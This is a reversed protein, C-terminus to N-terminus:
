PSSRKCLQKGHQQLLLYARTRAAFTAAVQKEMIQQAERYNHNYTEHTRGSDIRILVEPCSSPVAALTAVGGFLIIRDAGPDAIGPFQKLLARAQTLPIRSLASQLDGDFEEQVRQAIQKLRQARLEPVMGGPKLARALRSPSTMLLK